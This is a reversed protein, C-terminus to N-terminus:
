RYRESRRMIIENLLIVVDIECMCLEQREKEAFDAEKEIRKQANQQIALDVNDYHQLMEETYVEQLGAEYLQKHQAFRDLIKSFRVDFPTWFLDMAVRARRRM